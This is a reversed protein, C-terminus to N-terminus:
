QLLVDVKGPQDVAGQLLTLTKAASFTTMVVGVEKAAEKAGEETKSINAVVDYDGSQKRVVHFWLHYDGRESYHIGAESLNPFM